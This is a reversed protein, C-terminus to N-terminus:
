LRNVLVVMWVEVLMLLETLNHGMEVMRRIANIDGDSLGLCVRVPHYSFSCGACAISVDGLSAMSMGYKAGSVAGVDSAKAARTKVGPSISNSKSVEQSGQGRGVTM